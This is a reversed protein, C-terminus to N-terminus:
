PGARSHRRQTQQSTEPSSVPEHPTRWPISGHSFSGEETQILFFKRKRPVLIGMPDKNSFLCGVLSCVSGGRLPVRGYHSTYGTVRHAIEESSHPLHRTNGSPTRRLSTHTKRHRLPQLTLSVM